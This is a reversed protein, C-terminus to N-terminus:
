MGVTKNMWFDIYNWVATGQYIRKADKIDQAFIHDTFSRYNNIQENQLSIQEDTQWPQTVIYSWLAKDENITKVKEIVENLDKYNHCNIFAKPNFEKEINPNGWYIPISHALFSSIIKESTYGRFFSNEAAISFRYNEKQEISLEFWNKENRTIEIDCNHLYKGLADVNQYSNLGYFISARHTNAKANSYIFSCFKRTDYKQEAEAYELHNKKCIKDGGRMWLVTPRRCIRDRMFLEDDYTIAYDFLNMDPSIAEDGLFIIIRDESYINQLQKYLLANRYIVHSIVVLVYQPDEYDVVIEYKEKDLLFLQYLWEINYDNNILPLIRIQKM